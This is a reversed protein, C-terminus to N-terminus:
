SNESFILFVRTITLYRVTVTKLLAPRDDMSLLLELFLEVQSIYPVPSHSICEDLWKVTRDVSTKNRVDSVWAPVEDALSAWLDPKLSCIFEMYEAANVLRRGSPTEFSAGLKNSSKFEPLCQISDRAVAAFAHSHLGLMQNLGGLKSIVKLSMTDLFHLPSVHLLGSDPYPLDPLLDPSVFLPLGKRTSLLLAPTEIPSSCSGLQLKGVRAKGNSLTKVAFKM